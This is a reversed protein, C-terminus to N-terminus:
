AAVRLFLEAAMSTAARRLDGLDGANALRLNYTMTEVAADAPNSTVAVADLKDVFLTLLTADPVIVGLMSRLKAILDPERMHVFVVADSIEALEFSRRAFEVVKATRWSSHTEVSRGVEALLRRDAEDKVSFSTVPALLDRVPDISSMAWSLIDLDNLAGMMYEVATDKGARPRGNVVVLLKTM